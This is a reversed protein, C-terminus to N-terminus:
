DRSRRLRLLREVAPTASEASMDSTLETFRRMDAFLIASQIHMVEGRHVDGALIRQQPEHGVYTRLVESMIRHTALIEQAAAIAPFVARLFAFHDASFGSTHRTAFSFTSSMGNAMFVPMMVYHVFGDRKLDGVIEYKEDPTDPLWLVVWERTRHADAAPSSHYGGQTNRSFPFNYNRAGKGKEWFRASAADEAHLLPVISTTRELPLGAARIRDSMETLVVNADSAKLAPGLMYEILDLARGTLHPPLAAITPVTNAM